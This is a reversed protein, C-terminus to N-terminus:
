GRRQSRKSEKWFESWKQQLQFGAVTLDETVARRFPSSTALDYPTQGSFVPFDPDCVTGPPPLTGNRM